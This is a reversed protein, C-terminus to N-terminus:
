KIFKQIIIEPRPQWSISLHNGDLTLGQIWGEIHIEMYLIDKINKGTETKKWIIKIQYVEWSQM